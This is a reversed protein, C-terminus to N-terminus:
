CKTVHAAAIKEFRNKSQKIFLTNFIGSFAKRSLGEKEGEERGGCLSDGEPFRQTDDEHLYLDM